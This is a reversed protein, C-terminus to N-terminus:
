TSGGYTRGLPGLAERPPPPQQSEWVIAEREAVDKQEDTM